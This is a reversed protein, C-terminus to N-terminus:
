GCRKVAHQTGCIGPRASGPAGGRSCRGGYPHPEGPNVRWGQSEIQWLRDGDRHFQRDDTRHHDGDYEVAVRMDPYSLDLYAERGSGLDIRRNVEPEPLGARVLALRLTTEMPSDTRPRVSSLATRLVRIGPRGDAERVAARLQELTALPEQRRLIADGACVLADHGLTAALECFVEAPPPVPLGRLRRVEDQEITVRHGVVGAARPARGRRPVAVHIRGRESLPVPLDYLEAATTHSFFADRPMVEAYARCREEVTTPPTASLQRVGHFPAVLDDRRLRSRSVGALQAASTTFPGSRAVAPLDGPHRM